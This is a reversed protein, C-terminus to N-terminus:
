KVEFTIKGLGSYDTQYVYFPESNGNSTPVQVIDPEYM